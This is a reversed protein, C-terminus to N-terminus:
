KRHTNQAKARHDPINELHAKNEYKKCAKLNPLRRKL